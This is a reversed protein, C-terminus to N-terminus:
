RQVCADHGANDAVHKHDYQIAPQPKRAVADPCRTTRAAAFRAARARPPAAATLRAQPPRTRVQNLLAFSDKIGQCDLVLARIPPVANVKNFLAACSLAVAALMLAARRSSPAAAM